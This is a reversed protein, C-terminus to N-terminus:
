QIKKKMEPNTISLLVEEASGLPLVGIESLDSILTHPLPWPFPPLFPKVSVRLLWMLFAAGRLRNQGKRDGSALCSKEYLVNWVCPCRLASWMLLAFTNSVKLCANFLLNLYALIPFCHCFFTEFKSKFSALTLTSRRSEPLTGSTHLIIFIWQGM